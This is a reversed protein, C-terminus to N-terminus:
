NSKTASWTGTAGFSGVMAGEMSTADVFNGTYVAGFSFIWQAVNGVVLYTGTENNSTSFIGNTTNGQFTINYTGPPNPGSAPLSSWATTVQWTGTIDYQTEDGTEEETKCGSLSLFVLLPIIGIVIWKKRSMNEEM